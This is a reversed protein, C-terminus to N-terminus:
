LLALAKNEKETMVIRSEPTKDDQGCLHLLAHIVIRHLEDTFSVAADVANSAVTDLSIFVDGHLTNGVTEDFTIVDTYYDHQLFRRNVDLIGDDNCFIYNINGASKGYSAAVQKIWRQIRATDIAPMEM